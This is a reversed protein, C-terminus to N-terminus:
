TLLDIGFLEELEAKNWESAAHAEVPILRETSRRLLDNADVSRLIFFLDPHEDLRLGVGYLAAAVHKCMRAIDLCNCSFKIQDGTPFLGRVPDVIASLVSKPLEGELLSGVSDVQGAVREVFIRWYEPALTEIAISLEYLRTGQVLATVRGPTIKLDVVAGSRLYSRGRELRYDFDRYTELHDCWARGWFNHVLTPGASRVPELLYGEKQLKAVAKSARSRQECATVSREVRWNSGDDDYDYEYDSVQEGSPIQLSLYIWDSSRCLKTM